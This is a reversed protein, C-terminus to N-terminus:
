GDSFYEQDHTPSLDAFPLVAISKHPITPTIAAPTAAVATSPANVVPTAAQSAAVDGPDRVVGETTIDLVWALVVAIPFGVLLVLTIARPVWDPLQMQPALTAVVQILLWAVVLYAAGVKFVKRRKLEAFLSSRESM